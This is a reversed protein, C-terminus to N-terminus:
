RSMSRAVESSGECPRHVPKERPFLVLDRPPRATLAELREQLNSVHIELKHGDPDLFYFSEGPSRNEQWCQVGAAKLKAVEHSFNEPMVTFAFHTYEPLSGTRTTEDVNLCIWDEGAEM